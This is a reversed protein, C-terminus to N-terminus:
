RDLSHPAHIQLIKGGTEALNPKIYSRKNNTVFNSAYHYLLEITGDQIHFIRKWVDDKAPVSDNRSYTEIIDKLQRKPEAKSPATYCAFRSELRDTRNTYYEEFSSPTCVLKALHDLRAYYNFELTRDGEVSTAPAELSYVHKLLHDSRGIRFVEVVERKVHDIKVTAMKDMRNKYYEYTILPKTLAYDDFIKVRKVAGDREFYPSYKELLVKKYNIVRRNGPYRQEFEDASIDLKEVWSPPVSLHKETDVVTKKDSTDIGTVVRRHEPEGALLHEWCKLDSLDYNLSGLGGECNQINASEIYQYQTATIPHANGESPEIFFPEVIDKFGPSVM